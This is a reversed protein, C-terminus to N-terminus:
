PAPLVVAGYAALAEDGTLLVLKEVQAQAVLMRDFPDRHHWPLSSVQRTQAATLPLSEFSEEALREAFDVPLRLKGLSQKLGIEWLSVASVFVTNEPDRIMARAQASLSPSGELWWLLLHTDLLIRL